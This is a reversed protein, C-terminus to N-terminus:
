MENYRSRQMSFSKYEVRLEPRSLDRLNVCVTAISGRKFSVRFVISKVERVFEATGIPGHCYM